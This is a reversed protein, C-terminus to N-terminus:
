DTWDLFYSAGGEAQFCLATGCQQRAMEQGGQDIIKKVGAVAVPAYTNEVGAFTVWAGDVSVVPYSSYVM